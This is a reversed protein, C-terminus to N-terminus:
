NNNANKEVSLIFDAMASASNVFLRAHYEKINIRRADVGHSDSSTNRMEKIAKLIKELGSLLENIRKDLGKDPQMNYLDKVQKYLSGIDGSTVPTIKKAEIAHCFVEELLTRSKTLASDYEGNEIDRIARQSISKIYSYNVSNIEPTEIIISGKERAIVSKCKTYVSKYKEEGYDNICNAEYYDLLDAFLKLIKDDDAKDVYALLSKGKSLNYKQCLSEGISELTFTDFENTSFDLVYGGRNFLKMFYGKEIGNLLVIRRKTM